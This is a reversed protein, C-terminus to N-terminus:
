IAFKLACVPGIGAEISGDATLDRGCSCCRGSLKGYKVAAALPNQDIDDLLAVVEAADIGAQAFRPKFLTVVGDVIKGVVGEYKAHKIWVLSDQNKRALTVDGLYFHSHKQMVGFLSHVKQVPVVIVPAVSQALPTNLAGAKAVLSAAFAAQKESVFSGYRTLKNAMDTCIAANNSQGKAKYIVAATHLAHASVNDSAVSQPAAVAVPKINFTMSNEQSQNALLRIM